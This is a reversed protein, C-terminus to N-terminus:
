TEAPRGTGSAAPPEASSTRRAARARRPFFLHLPHVRERRREAELNRVRATLLDALSILGVLKECGNREVVPFRTLGTEAMRYAVARLPEDPYAVVPVATVLDALPRADGRASHERLDKATVVGVLRHRRDVIPYLRQKREGRGGPLSPAVAAVSADAPLAQVSQRMVE